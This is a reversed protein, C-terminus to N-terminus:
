SAYVVHRRGARECTGRLRLGLKQAVRISAGNEGDIAAVVPVDSAALCARVAETAYGLGWHRRAFTWGVEREGTDFVAFGVEGVVEGTDRREVAYFGLDRENDARHKELVARVAAPELAGGPVFRMVEPDCYVDVM